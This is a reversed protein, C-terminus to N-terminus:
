YRHSDLTDAEDDTLWRRTGGPGVAIVVFDTSTRPLAEKAQALTYHRTVIHGVEDPQSVRDTGSLGANYTSVAYTTIDLKKNSTNM